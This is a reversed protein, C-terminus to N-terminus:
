TAKYSTFILIQRMVMTCAGEVFLQLQIKKPTLLDQEIDNVDM